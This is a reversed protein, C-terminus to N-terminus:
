WHSLRTSEGEGMEQETLGQLSSLPLWRYSSVVHLLGAGTHELELLIGWQVSSLVLYAM